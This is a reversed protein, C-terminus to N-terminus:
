SLIDRLIIVINERFCVTNHLGAYFLYLLNNNKFDEILTIVWLTLCQLSHFRNLSFQKICARLIIRLLLQRSASLGFDSRCYLDLRFCRYVM